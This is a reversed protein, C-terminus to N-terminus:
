KKTPPLIKLLTAKSVAQLRSHVQLKRYINYTHVKVTSLSLHFQVAIQQNSFGQSILALIEIERDSLPEIIEGDHIIFKDTEEQTNMQPFLSLLHGTFEPHINRHAAEYLLTLINEKQELFIQVQGEPYALDLAKHLYGLAEERANNKEHAVALLVSFQLVFDGLNKEVSEHYLKSLIEISESLKGQHIACCALTSPYLYQIPTYIISFSALDRSKEIDHMSLANVREEAADLNGMLLHLQAIRCSVVFDDFETTDFQIALEQAQQMYALAQQIRGQAICVRAKSTCLGWFHSIAINEKIELGASLFRDAEDLQNRKYAIEGLGLLVNSGIPLYANKDITSLDLAEQYNKQAETLKGMFNYLDGLYSRSTIAIVLNGAINSRLYTKRLNEITQNINVPLTLAQILELYGSLFEDEQPPNSKILDLHQLAEQPNGQIIALLSRIFAPGYFGADAFEQMSELIQKIEHYSNGRLLLTLAYYTCLTPNQYLKERPLRNLWNSFVTFQSHNLVSAANLQILREAADMNEAMLNHEIAENYYHNTEFWNAASQHILRKREKDLKELQSQLLDAFLTHYRYWTRENDLPVIFLNNRELFDLMQQSDNRELVHNCLSASFHELLSTFLLFNRTEESQNKLAEDLLYDLIFRNTGKFSEIFLDISYTDDLSKIASAALQMGAIWGETKNTLARVNKRTFIDGLASQFFETSEKLTFCLDARRIETLYGRVRWNPLNVVPDARTSIVFHANAPLNEVMYNISENIVPSHIHHFDDLVVIINESSSLICNLLIDLNQRLNGSFLAAKETLLQQLQIYGRNFFSHFFYEMFRATDNDNEDLTLWATPHHFEQTWDALLSTKGYGAPASLLVMRGQLGEELLHTLRSRHVLQERAKPLYFKTHLLNIETEM